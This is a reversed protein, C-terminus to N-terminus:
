DVTNREEWLFYDCHSARSQLVETIIMMDLCRTHILFSCSECKWTGAFYKRAYKKSHALRTPQDRGRHPISGPGFGSGFFPVDIKEIAMNTEPLLEPLPASSSQELFRVAIGVVPLGVM